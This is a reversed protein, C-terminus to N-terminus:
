VRRVSVRVRPESEPAVPYSQMSIFDGRGVSGDRDVDVHAWITAHRPLATVEVQVMDLADGRAKRVTGLGQGVTIPPADALGTDRVEVVIPAGRPPRDAGEAIVEVLVNM